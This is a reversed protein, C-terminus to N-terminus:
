HLPQLQSHSCEDPCMTWPKCLVIGLALGSLDGGSCVCVSFGWIVPAWLLFTIVGGCLSLNQPLFPHLHLPSSPIFLPSFDAVLSSSLFPPPSPPLSITFNINGVMQNPGLLGPALDSLAAHVCMGSREHFACVGCALWCLHMMSSFICWLCMCTCDNFGIFRLSAVTLWVCEWGFVWFYVCFVCCLKHYLFFFFSEDQRPSLLCRDARCRGSSCLFM